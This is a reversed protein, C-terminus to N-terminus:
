CAVAASTIRLRRSAATDAVLRRGQTRALLGAFYTQVTQSDLEAIPTKLMLADIQAPTLFSSEGEAELRLGSGLADLTLSGGRSDLAQEGVLLLNCGLKQQRPGLRRVGDLYHCAIRTAAFYRAALEFPPSGALTGEGRFGYTFRYFQLRSVARHVSEAFLALASSDQPGEELLSEVGVGAAMMPGSLEHCLRASLLEILRLDLTDIM